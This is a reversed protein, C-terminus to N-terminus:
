LKYKLFEIGLGGISIYLISENKSNTMINGKVSNIESVCVHFYKIIKFSNNLRNMVSINVIQDYGASLIILENKNEILDISKIASFHM